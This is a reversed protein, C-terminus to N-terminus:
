NELVFLAGNLCGDYCILWDATNNWKSWCYDNCHQLIDSASPVAILVISATLICFSLICITLKSSFM